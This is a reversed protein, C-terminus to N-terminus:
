FITTLFPAGVSLTGSGTRAALLRLKGATDDNSVTVAQQANNKTYGIYTFRAPDYPLTFDVGAATTDNELSVQLEIAQGPIVGDVNPTLKVFPELDTETDSQINTTRAANM